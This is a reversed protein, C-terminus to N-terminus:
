WGKGDGQVSIIRGRKWEGTGVQVSGSISWDNETQLGVVFIINKRKLTQMREGYEFIIAM